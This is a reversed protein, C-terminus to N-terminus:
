KNNISGEHATCKGFVHWKMLGKKKKKDFGVENKKEKWVAWTFCMEEMKKGEGGEKKQFHRLGETMEEEQAFVKQLTQNNEKKPQHWQSRIVNYTWYDTLRAQAPHM